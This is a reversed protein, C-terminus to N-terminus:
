RALRPAQDPKKTSVLAPVGCRHRADYPSLRECSSPHPNRGQSSGVPTKLMEIYAAACGLRIRNLFASAKPSAIRDNTKKRCITACPCLSERCSPAHRTQWSACIPIAGAIAATVSAAGITITPSTAVSTTPAVVWSAAECLEGRAGGEEFAYNRMVLTRTTARRSAAAFGGCKATRDM